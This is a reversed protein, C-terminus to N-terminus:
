QEIRSLWGALEVTLKRLHDAKTLGTVRKRPALDHDGDKFWVIEVSSSLEYKSVEQFTGFPDRTGQCILVPAELCTLHKTRLVKPHKPPHFPYGISIAGIAQNKTHLEDAIMTAVRGGMSKGGVLVPQAGCLDYVRAIFEPKLTEARPPPRRSTGSRRDAMYSFEFRIVSLKAAVMSSAFANMAESDMPAGAGHAFLVTALSDPAENIILSGM